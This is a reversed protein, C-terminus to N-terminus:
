SITQYDIGNSFLFSPAAQDVRIRSLYTMNIATAPSASTEYIITEDEGFSLGLPQAPNSSQLTWLSIPPSQSFDIKSIQYDTNNTIMVYAQKNSDVLTNRQRFNYDSTLSLQNYQVTGILAGTSSEVLMILQGNIFANSTLILLSNGDSSYQVNMITTNPIYVTNM